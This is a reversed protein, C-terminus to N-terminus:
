DDDDYYVGYGQSSDFERSVKKLESKVYARWNTFVQRMAREVADGKISDWNSTNWRFAESMARERIERDTPGDNPYRFRKESREDTLLDKWNNANVNQYARELQKRETEGLIFSFDGVNFGDAGRSLLGQLKQYRAISNKVGDLSNALDRRAKELDKHVCSREVMKMGGKKLFQTLVYVQSFRQDKCDPLIRSALDSIRQDINRHEQMVDGSFNERANLVAYLEPEQRLARYFAAVEERMKEGLLEDIRKPLDSAALSEPAESRDTSEELNILQGRLQVYRDRTLRYYSTDVCCGRPVEPLEYRKPLECVATVM